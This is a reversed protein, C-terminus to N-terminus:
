RTRHTLGVDEKKTEETATKRGNEGDLATKLLCDHRLVHGTWNVQRLKIIHVLSRQEQVLGLVEENSM